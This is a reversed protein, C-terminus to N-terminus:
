ATWGPCRGEAVKSFYSSFRATVTSAPLNFSGLILWGGTRNQVVSHAYKIYTSLLGGARVQFTTRVEVVTFGSFVKPWVACFLVLVVCVLVPAPRLDSTFGDSSGGNHNRGLSCGFRSLNKHADCMPM